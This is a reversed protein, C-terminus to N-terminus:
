RWRGTPGQRVACKTAIGIVLAPIDKRDMSGVSSSAKASLMKTQTSAPARPEAIVSARAAPSNATWTSKASIRMLTGRHRAGALEAVSKSHAHLLVM